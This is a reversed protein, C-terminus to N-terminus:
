LLLHPSVEESVTRVRRVKPPSNEAAKKLREQLKKVRVELRTALEEKRKAERTKKELNKEKSSREKASKEKPSKMKSNEEESSNKKSKAQTKRGMEPSEDLSPTIGEIERIASSSAKTGDNKAKKSDLQSIRARRIIKEMGETEKSFHSDLIEKKVPEVADQATQEDNKEMGKSVSKSALDAGTVSNEAQAKKIIDEGSQEIRSKEVKLENMIDNTKLNGEKRATRKISKVRKRLTRARTKSLTKNIVTGNRPNLSDDLSWGKIADTLFAEISGSDSGSASTSGPDRNKGAEIDSAKSALLPLKDKHREALFKEQPEEQM